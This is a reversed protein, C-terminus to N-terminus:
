TNCLPNGDMSWVLMPKGEAAARQRGKWLSTTWPIRLYAVESGEGRILAQLHGLDQQRAEWAHLGRYALLGLSLGLALLRVKVHTSPKV